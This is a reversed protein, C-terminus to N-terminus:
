EELDDPLGPLIQVIYGGSHLVRPEPVVFVGLAVASPTQESEALYHAIDEGIEGSVIPVVGQYPVGRGADRM